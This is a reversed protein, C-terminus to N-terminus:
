FFILWAIVMGLWPVWPEHGARNSFNSQYDLSFHKYPFLVCMSPSNNSEPLISFQLVKIKKVLGPFDLQIQSNNSIHFRTKKEKSNYIQSYQSKDLFSSIKWNYIERFTTQPSPQLNGSTEKFSICRALLVTDQSRELTRTITVALLPKLLVPVKMDLDIGGFLPWSKDENQWALFDILSIYYFM